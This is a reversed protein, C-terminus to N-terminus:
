PNQEMCNVTKINSEITLALYQLNKIIAGSQKQHISPSKLVHSSSFRKM